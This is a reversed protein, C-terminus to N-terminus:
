PSLSAFVFTDPVHGLVEDGGVGHIIRHVFVGDGLIDELLHGVGALILRQTISFEYSFFRRKVFLLNKLEKATVQHFPSRWCYDNYLYDLFDILIADIHTKIQIKVRM